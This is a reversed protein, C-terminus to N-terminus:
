LDDLAAIKDQSVQDAGGRALEALRLKQWGRVEFIADVIVAVTGDIEPAAHRVHEGRRGIKQLGVAPASARREALAGRIELDHALPVPRHHVAFGHNEKGLPKRFGSPCSSDGILSARMMAQAPRLSASIALKAAM